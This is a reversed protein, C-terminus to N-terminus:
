ANDDREGETLRNWARSVVISTVTFFGSLVYVFLARNNENTRITTYSILEFADIFILGYYIIEATDSSHSGGANYCDFLTSTVILFSSLILEGNGILNIMDFPTGRLISM